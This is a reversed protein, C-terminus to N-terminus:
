APETEALVGIIMPIAEVGDLSLVECAADDYFDEHWQWPGALSLGRRCSELAVGAQAYSYRHGRVGGLSARRAPVSIIFIMARPTGGRHFPLLRNSYAMGLERKTLVKHRIAYSEAIGYIARDVLIFFDCDLRWDKCPEPLFEFTNAPIELEEALAQLTCAEVDPSYCSEMEFLLNDSIKLRSDALWDSIGQLAQPAILASCCNGMPTVHSNAALLSGVDALPDPHDMRAAWSMGSNPRVNLLASEETFEIIM